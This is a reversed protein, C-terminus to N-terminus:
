LDPLVRINADNRALRGLYLGRACNGDAEVRFFGRLRRGFFDACLHFAMPFASLACPRRVSSDNGALPPGNRWLRRRLSLHVGRELVGAGRHVDAGAVVTHLRLSGLGALQRSDVLEAQTWGRDAGACRADNACIFDGPRVAHRKRLPAM